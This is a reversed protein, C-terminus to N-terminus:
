VPVIDNVGEISYLPPPHYSQNLLPLTAAPWCSRLPHYDGGSACTERKVDSRLRGVCGIVATTFNPSGTM